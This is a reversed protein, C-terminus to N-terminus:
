CCASSALVSRSPRRSRFLPDIAPRTFHEKPERVARVRDKELLLHRDRPALCITGRAFRQRDKAEVVRHRTHGRLVSALHDRHFPSRHIVVFLTAPFDPALRHFLERLATVGGASAGITIIDRVRGLRPRRPM